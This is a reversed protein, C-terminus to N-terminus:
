QACAIGQTAAAITLARCGSGSLPVRILSPQANTRIRLEGVRSGIITPVFRLNIQCSAQSPLSAGCNHNLQYDGQLEIATIELPLEGTSKLELVGFASPTGVLRNGFAVATASLTAQPAPVALGLGNVAVTLTGANTNLVLSAARAGLEKPSFTMTIVCTAGAALSTGCTNTQSFDAASAGTITASTIVLPANGVNNLALEATANRGLVVSPFPISLRSLQAAPAPADTAVGFLNVVGPAFNIGNLLLVGSTNGAV